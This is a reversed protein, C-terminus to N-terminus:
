LFGDSGWRRVQSPWTLYRFRTQDARQLGRLSAARAVSAATPLTLVRAFALDNPYLYTDSDKEIIEVATSCMVVGFPGALTQMRAGCNLPYGVFDIENFESIITQPQIRIASGVSIGVGYGSPLKGREEIRAQHFHHHLHYAADIAFRLAPKEAVPDVLALGLSYQGAQLNAPVPLSAAVSQDGPLWSTVDIDAQAQQCAIEGKADLLYLVLLYRRYLKGVGVNSWKMNVTLTEGRALSDPHSVERLM